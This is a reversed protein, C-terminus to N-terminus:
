RRQLDQTGSSVSRPIIGNKTPKKGNSKSETFCLVPETTSSLVDRLKRKRDPVDKVPEQKSVREASIVIGFDLRRCTGQLFTM